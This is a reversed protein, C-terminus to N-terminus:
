EGKVRLWNHLITELLSKAESLTMPAKPPKSAQKGHRSEDGIAGPSNATHKFREIARRTAWGKKSINSIGGVDNEVVEYIRYLSIWDHVGVGSLRLAKAVNTDRRAAAVWRSIPELQSEEQVVGDVGVIPKGASFGTAAANPFIFLNRKGNDTAQVVCDVALSKKMELVLRAAGNILPAIECAKNKVENADTLLNFDTSKLIFDKGQQTICLQPSNFYKCLEELDSRDGSIIVSWEM